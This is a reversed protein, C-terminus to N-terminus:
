YNTIKIIQGHVTHFSAYIRINIHLVCKGEKIIKFCKTQMMTKKKM